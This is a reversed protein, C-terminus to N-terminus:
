KYSKLFLPSYISDESDIWKIMTKFENNNAIYTNSIWSIDLSVKLFRKEKLSDILQQLQITIDPIIPIFEIQHSLPDEWDIESPKEIVNEPIKPKEIILESYIFSAKHSCIEKFGDFTLGYFINRNSGRIISINNTPNGNLIYNLPKLLEEKEKYSNGFRTYLTTINPNLNREVFNEVSVLFCKSFSIHKIHLKMKTLKEFLIRYNRCTFEWLVHEFYYKTAIREYHEKTLYAISFLDKFNGLFCVIEGWMDIPLQTQYLIRKSFTKDGSHKRKM